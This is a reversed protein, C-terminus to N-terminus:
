FGNTGYNWSLAASHKCFTEIAELFEYKAWALSNDLWDFLTRLEQGVYDPSLSPFEDLNRKIIIRLIRDRYTLRDLGEEKDMIKWIGVQEGKSANLLEQLDKRRLERIEEATTPYQARYYWRFRHSRSFSPNNVRELQTKQKRRDKDLGPM